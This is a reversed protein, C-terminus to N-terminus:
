TFTRVAVSCAATFRNPAEDCCHRVTLAAQSATLTGAWPPSAWHVVPGPLSKETETLGAEPVTWLPDVTLVVTAVAVVEPLACVTARVAEPRGAPTVAEKLGDETVDPPEDASVSVAEAEAAVPAVATVM